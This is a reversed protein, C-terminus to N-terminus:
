SILGKEKLEDVMRIFEAEDRRGLKIVADYTEMAVDPDVDSLYRNFVSNFTKRKNDDFFNDELSHSIKQAILAIEDYDLM